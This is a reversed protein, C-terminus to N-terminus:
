AKKIKLHEVKPAQIGLDPALAELAKGLDSQTLHAYHKELMRIDAHGTLKAVMLLPMGAVVLASAYSHRLQHFGMPPLKAAECAKRMSRAQDSTKWPGLETIKERKRGPMGEAEGDERPAEWRMRPRLFIPEDGPRGATISEFFERGTSSLTARRPKGGKAERILVSAHGSPNPEFDECVMRCLEGYRCGTLLAGEVLRRFDPDAVANILRRQQEPTLYSQRAEEVGRFPKVLAWADDPCGILRRDRAHNLAAKLYALAKNATAKRARKEDQTAPARGVRAEGGRKGKVRAPSNAIGLAWKEVMSRTLNEVPVSGLAPVIYVRSRSQADSIGKKGAREGHELYAAMADGVTFTEKPLAEGRAELRIEDACSRFWDAAKVQAQAYTLVAPGDADQFDDATGLATKRFTRSEPLYLRARWTGAGGKKPKFYGLSQNPALPIWYPEAAPTLKARASRTDLKASRMTRAM